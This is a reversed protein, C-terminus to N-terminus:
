QSLWVASLPTPGRSGILGSNLASEVSEGGGFPSHTKNSDMHENIGM